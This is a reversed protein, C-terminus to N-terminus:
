STLEQLQVDTLQRPYFKIDKIIVGLTTTSGGTTVGLMLRFEDDFEGTFGSPVTATQTNVGNGDACVKLSDGLKYAAVYKQTAVVTGAPTAVEQLNSLGKLYSQNNVQSTSGGNYRIGFYNNSDRGWWVHFGYGDGADYSKAIDTSEIYITAEATRYGFDQTTLSAKDEVRTSQGGWISPIPSSPHDGTEVQVGWISTSGLTGSVQSSVNTRLPYVRAVTCGTPATFTRHHRYWGNGVDEGSTLTYEEIEIWGNNTEDLIGLVWATATGAKAFWSYTYQTGATVSATTYVYAGVNNMTVEAAENMTTPAAVSRKNVVTGSSIGWGAWLDSYLVLNTATPEIILGEPLGASNYKLRPQNSSHNIYRLEGESDGLLVEKISLSTVTFSYDGTHSTHREIYFVRSQANATFIFENTQTSGTFTILSKTSFGSGDATLGGDNAADRIRIQQNLTGSVTIVARYCKGAELGLVSQYANEYGGSTVNITLGTGAMSAGGSLNWSGTAQDFNTNTVLEPGYKVRTRELAGGNRTFRMLSQATGTKNVM